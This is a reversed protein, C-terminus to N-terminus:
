DSASRRRRRWLPPRLRLTSSAAWPWMGVPCQARLKRLGTTHKSADACAHAFACPATSTSAVEDRLLRQVQVGVGEVADRELSRGGATECDAGHPRPTPGRYSHGNLSCSLRRCTPRWRCDNLHVNIRRTVAHPCATCEPGCAARFHLPTRLGNFFFTTPGLGLAWRACRRCALGCPLTAGPGSM